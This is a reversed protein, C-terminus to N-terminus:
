YAAAKCQKLRGSSSLKEPLAFGWDCSCTINPEVSNHVVSLKPIGKQWASEESMSCHREVVRPEFPNSNPRGQRDRWPETFCYWKYHELLRKAISDFEANLKDNRYSCLTGEGLNDIEVVNASNLQGIREAFTEINLGGEVSANSSDFRDYAPFGELPQVHVKAWSHLFSNPIEPHDMFGAERFDIGSHHWQSVPFIHDMPCEFPLRFTEAGPARCANLSNWIKDCYCRSRPLVLARGLYRALAIGNAIANRRHWDEMFHRSIATFWDGNSHGITEEGTFPVQTGRDSLVLLKSQLRETINDTRWLRVERLRQRKGYGYTADDGYQYTMHVSYPEDQPKIYHKHVQQVFFVHGNAFLWNPLIGLRLRHHWASYVRRDKEEDVDAAVPLRGNIGEKIVLNLTPQDRMNPDTTDRVREHWEQVFAKSANTPRFHLIGTNVQVHACQSRDKADGPVDICDNSVLADATGYSGARLYPRPDRLWVVDADSVIPRFGIELLDKIFRTKVTSMKRFSRHNISLYNAERSDLISHGQLLLTPVQWQMCVDLMEDDMSGVVRPLLNLDLTHQLWNYVFDKASSTAFTVFVEHGPPANRLSYPLRGAMATSNASVSAGTTNGMRADAPPSAPATSHKRLVPFSHVSTSHTQRGAAASTAQASPRIAAAASSSSSASSSRRQFRGVTFRPYLGSPPSSEAASRM